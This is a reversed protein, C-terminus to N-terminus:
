GLAARAERALEGASGPREAPDKALARALVAGLGSPLDPNVDLLAPPPDHVHAWLKDLDSDREYVVAGTLTEFLVCGLSYVDSRADAHGGGAQEPAMYDTTGVALGTRTLESEAAHTTVGFDTLFAHEGGDAAGLLVNAPKVDRHVLGHRHAADLADAVQSVVAVARAPELAGAERLLSRLDTGDVYRMTLYLRGAEEGAHFVEVVHPHDIAAAARCEREFRARFVADAAISPAIVKLAVPRELVLDTARFVIGMGGRGAVGEIRHNAFTTGVELEGDPPMSALRAGLAPDVYTRGSVVAHVAAVLEGEGADKLVYGSAGAALALRAFVPDSQMTLVVIAAEPLTARFEPIAALTPRGPMNLDLVVVSPRHAVACQLATDVDGAEAVVSFGNEAELLGRLGRRLVAHDDAIVITISGRASRTSEAV